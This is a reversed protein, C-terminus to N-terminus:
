YERRSRPGGTKLYAALLDEDNFVFGRAKFGAELRKRDEAPIDSVKSEVLKGTRVATPFLGLFSKKFEADLGFLADIKTQIEAHTLKDGKAKQASLIEQDVAQKIAGARMADTGTPNKRAKAVDIGVGSLRNNLVRTIEASNLDEIKSAAKEGTAKRYENSFHKFDTESLSSRFQYFQEQSLGRLFKEDSLKFYSALDTENDVGAARKAAEKAYRHVSDLKDGSINRRLELPLANYNGGNQELQKYVTDLTEADRQRRQSELAQWQRQIETTVAKRKELDNGARKEGERELDLLSPRAPTVGSTYGSTVKVVYDQTEKPLRALWDGGGEVAKKVAGPGANYAATAKGVDGNFTKLQERFYARGLRENYNEDSKLRDLSWSEGALKAAEPGTTPMVQWKGLAGKPSTMVVGKNDFQRGQSEAQILNHEIVNLPTPETKAEADRVIKSSEVVAFNAVDQQRYLTQVDLMDKANMDSANAKLYQEVFQFNKSGLAQTLVQKHVLSHVDRRIDTVLEAAIGERQRKREIAADIRTLGIEVAAPDSWNRGANEVEVKFVGDDVQNSYAKIQNGEHRMLGSRFETGLVAARQQFKQRQRDTALGKQLDQTYTQFQGMYEDTLPKGSEREIASKGLQSTYGTQPNLTLDLQKERLANINEEVRLDDHEERQRAFVEGIAGATRGYIDLANPQISTDLRPGAIPNLEGQPMYLNDPIRPM